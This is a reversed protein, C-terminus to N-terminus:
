QLPLGCGPCRSARDLAPPSFALTTKVHRRTSRVRDALRLRPVSRALSRAGPVTTSLAALAQAWEVGDILSQRDWSGHSRCLRHILGATMWDGAGGGDIADVAPPKLTRRVGNFEITSGSSGETLVWLQGDVRAPLRGDLHVQRQASYKIITAPSCARSHATPTARTSPEYVVCAGAQQHREAIAINVASPRDFFFVDALTVDHAHPIERLPRHVASGRGCVHCGFRYRHAGARIEHRVIPTTVVPDLSLDTTGVNSAKLSAGVVTGAADRGIRGVIASAWGLYALNAAVNAATGGADHWLDGNVQVVDLVTYGGSLVTRM